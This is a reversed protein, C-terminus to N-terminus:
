KAAPQPALTDDKRCKYIGFKRKGDAVAGIPVITDGGLDVADNSALRALDDAVVEPLRNFGGAQHIVSVTTAGKNDCAAVKSEESVVVKDAGPKMPILTCASLSAFLIFPLVAQRNM